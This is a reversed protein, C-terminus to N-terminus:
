VPHSWPASDPAIHLDANGAGHKRARFPVVASLEGRASTYGPAGVSANAVVIQTMTDMEAGVEESSESAGGRPLRWETQSEGLM